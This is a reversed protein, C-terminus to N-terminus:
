GAECLFGWSSAFYSDVIKHVLSFEYKSLMRAQLHMMLLRFLGQLIFAAVIMILVSMLSLEIHLFAFMNEILEGVNGLVGPLTGAEGMVVNMLPVLLAVTAGEMLAVAAMLAVVTILGLKQERLMRYLFKLFVM